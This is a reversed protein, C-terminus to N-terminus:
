SRRTQRVQTSLQEMSVGGLDRSFIEVGRVDGPGDARRMYDVREGSAGSVVFREPEGSEWFSRVPEPWAAANADRVDDAADPRRARGAETRRTGAPLVAEGDSRADALTSRTRGDDLLAPQPRPAVDHDLRNGRAAGSNLRSLSRDTAHSSDDRRPRAHRSRASRTLCGLPTPITPGRSRPHLPTRGPKAAFRSRRPRAPARRPLQGPSPPRPSAGRLLSSSGRSRLRFPGAELPHPSSTPRAADVSTDILGQLTYGSDAAGSTSDGDLVRYELRVWFQVDRGLTGLASVPIALQDVCWAEAAAMMLHSVSQSRADVTTVAFREEWLDYSLAFIRRTTATPSKGPAPLVMAALEVRVSRGDKLRALPDGKLFSFGSARIKLAEGVADVTLTQASSRLAPWALLALLVVAARRGPTVVPDWSGPNASGFKRCRDPQRHEASLWRGPIGARRPFRSGDLRPGQRETGTDWVSGIDLFLALGTYRYEIARTSCATAARRRSTTSTGAGFRARTVSRSANSSRRRITSGDLWEPRGSTTADSTSDIRARGSIGRTSSIVKSSAPAPVCASAPRSTPAGCRFRDEMSPRLRDLRGGREGDTHRDRPLAAGAGLHERGRRRQPGSHIRVEALAHVDLAHRISRSHRARTRACGAHRRALGSRVAVVRPQRRAPPHWAEEGRLAARLRLYGRCTTGTTSPRSRRSVSTAPDGIGLDLYSGWGHDSHYVLNSRLPEFRLWPPPEKKRAEYVLRIRGVESGRQIRRSVRLAPARTRHAGAAREAESRISASASSFSCTTACRRADARRRARRHHRGARRHVTRQRQRRTRARVSPGHRVVRPGARRSGHRRARRRCLPAARGRHPRRARRSAATEIPHRRSQPDGRSPRSEPSQYRLRHGAGLHHGHRGPVVPKQDTAAQPAVALLTILLGITRMGADLALLSGMAFGNTNLLIAYNARSQRDCRHAPRSCANM